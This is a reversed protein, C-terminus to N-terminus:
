AGGGPLPRPDPTVREFIKFAVNVMRKEGVSGSPTFANVYGRYTRRLGAVVMEILVYEETGAETLAALEDLLEDGEDTAWLQKEVTYDAVPMLGPKTERSRGPSQQHTVDQDEPAKEPVGLTEIGYIQLFTAPGGGGAAFRGIHLQDDWSVAAESQREPM